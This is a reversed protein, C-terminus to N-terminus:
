ALRKEMFISLPDPDYGDFPGREAYGVARYLGLATPQRIGTELRLVSLHHARAAEELAALMRRGLGLGRAEPALFMRKIEGAGCGQVVLAACGLASGAQRAVLFVVDPAELAALDLLHNSEAPYLAASFADSAELLAIVQAQRPAEPAICIADIAAEAEAETEAVDVDAGSACMTM